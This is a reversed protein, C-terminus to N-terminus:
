LWGRRGARAGLGGFAAPHKATYVQWPDKGAAVGLGEGPAQVLDWNLRAHLAVPGRPQDPGTSCSRPRSRSLFAHDSLGARAARPARDGLVHPTFATATSSLVFASAQHFASCRSLPADGLAFGGDAAKGQPQAAGAGRESVGHAASPWPTWGPTRLADEVEHRETAADGTHSLGCSHFIARAKLLEDRLMVNEREALFAAHSAAAAASQAARVCSASARSNRDEQGFSDGEDRDRSPSNPRAGHVELRALKSTLAARAGQEATREAALAAREHELALCMGSMEECLGHWQHGNPMRALHASLLGIKARLEHSTAGTGRTHQRGDTAWAAPTHAWCLFASHLARSRTLVIMAIVRMHGGLRRVDDFERRHDSLLEHTLQLLRRAGLGRVAESWRAFAWLSRSGMSRMLCGYLATAQAHVTPASINWRTMSSVEQLRIEANLCQVVAQM